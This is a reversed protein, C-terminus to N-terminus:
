GYSSPMNPAGRVSLALALRQLEGRPLNAFLSIHSLEQERDPDPAKM